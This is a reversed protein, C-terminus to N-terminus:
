ASQGPVEVREMDISVSRDSVPQVFSWAGDITTNAIYVHDPWSDRGALEAELAQAVLVPNTLAIDANELILVTIDGDERCATLKPLKKDLATRIRIRRQAEIDGGISRVVYFSGADNESTARHVRLSLPIGGVETTRVGCELCESHLEKAAERVWDIIRNRLAAHAQQSKGATPHIPFVLQYMGPGPMSGSLNAEIGNTIEGFWTDNRIQKPFPEILTHELAFRREGLRLRIDVPPGSQDREPYTVDSRSVGSKEELLRILADCLAQENTMATSRQM